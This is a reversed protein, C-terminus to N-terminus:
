KYQLCPLPHLFCGFGMSLPLHHNPALVFVKTRDKLYMVLIIDLYVVRMLKKLNVPIM